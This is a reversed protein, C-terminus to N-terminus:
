ISYDLDAKFKNAIQKQPHVKTESVSMHSESTAGM